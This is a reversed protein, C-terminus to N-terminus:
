GLGPGAIDSSSDIVIRHYSVVPHRELFVRGAAEPVRRGDIVLAAIAASAAGAVLGAGLGAEGWVVPAMGGTLTVLGAWLWLPRNAWSRRGLLAGAALLGTLAYGFQAATAGQQGVTEASDLADGDVYPRRM